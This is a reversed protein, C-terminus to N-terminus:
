KKESVILRPYVTDKTNEIVKDAVAQGLRAVFEEKWAVIRRVYSRDIAVSFIKSNVKAGAEIRALLDKETSKVQKELEEYEKKLTLFVNKNIQFRTLEAESIDAVQLSKDTNKATKAM